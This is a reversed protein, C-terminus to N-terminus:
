DLADPLNDDDPLDEEDLKKLNKKKIEHRFVLVVGVLALLGYVIWFGPTNTGNIFGEVFGEVSLIM